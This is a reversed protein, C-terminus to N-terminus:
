LKAFFGLLIIVMLEAVVFYLLRRVRLNHGHIQYLNLILANLYHKESHAEISEENKRDRAERDFDRMYFPEKSHQDNNEM